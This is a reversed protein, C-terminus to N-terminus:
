LRKEKCITSTWSKIFILPNEDFNSVRSHEADDIPTVPANEGRNIGVSGYLVWLHLRQPGKSGEPSDAVKRYSKSGHM